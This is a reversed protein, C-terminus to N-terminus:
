PAYRNRPLTDGAPKSLQKLLVEGTARHGPYLDFMRNYTRIHTSKGCGSPGILATIRNRAIELNNSRLAQRGDYFFDLNQVRIKPEDGATLAM